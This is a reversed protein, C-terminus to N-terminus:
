RCKSDFYSSNRGRVIQLREFAKVDANLSSSGMGCNLAVALSPSNRSGREQWFSPFGLEDRTLVIQIRAWLKPRPKGAQRVSGEVRRM